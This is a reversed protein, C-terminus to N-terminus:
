RRLLLAIRPSRTNSNSAALEGLLRAKVAYEHQAGIGGVRRDLRQVAVLLPGLEAIVRFLGAARAVDVVAVHEGIHPKDEVDLNHQAILV